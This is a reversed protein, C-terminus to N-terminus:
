LLKAVTKFHPAVSKYLGGFIGYYDDYVGALDPTPAVESVVSITAECAEEVSSYIGAGVAALLAVGYAPGETANISVMPAQVIDACLQTWFPSKAGGGSIRVQDIPLGMSKIIEFSDRLGFTVGELLARCMHAKTHMLSLGFFVGKADPDCHPTREGTLYPLFVLGDSGPSITEAGRTMLNYPDDGIVGATETEAGCLIDRYWRLSGGASLMVGMVHWKGPVAHCFAQASGTPDCVVKDAFAFVVGSTGLSLSIIGPKTVGNGVAGAAQDGGGGVVVVGPRLGMQEAVDAKLTGTVEPSEMCLPMFDEPVDIKELLKKSWMRETVNLLLTGSADSVETALEGTLMYRIYDKPLLVKWIKEYIDPENNRIWLIKPATFGTIAPNSVEAILAERGGMKDTIEDCEAATRQDCWLIAPRLVDGAKDICVAGHMQGSLGIGVINEAPVGSGAVAEKATSLTANWWYAPDQEAWNPKPNSLPYEVSAQSLINGKEDVVITKTGSTGIDIGVTCIM